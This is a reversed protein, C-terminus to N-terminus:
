KTKNIRRSQKARIHRTRNYQEVVKSKITRQRNTQPVDDVTIYRIGMIPDYITKIM